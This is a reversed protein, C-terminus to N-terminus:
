RILSVNGKKIIKEGNITTANIYYILVASDLLKGKYTGDWSASGSPDTNEFVKEGWRDFIMISFTAVCNEWGLLIFKDNHGDNNPSFANPVIFGDNSPCHYEVIVRVCASDKCSNTDTVTVCYDTTVMPTAIPDPCITCSLRTSPSWNYTGGGAGTLQTSSGSIITVNFGANAAPGNRVFVNTNATDSCGGNSVIVSYSTNTTPSISISSTTNGTNWNYLGGGSAILVTSEGKCITDNGTIVAVPKVSVIVNEAATDSCGNITGTVIYTATIAPTVNAMNTSIVTTGASWTYSMAGNAILTVTQGACISTDNGLTVFPSTIIVVVPLSDSIVGSHTIAFVTYTGSATFIHGPNFLASSNFVGSSPDNFNWSVSDLGITDAITFLTTDGLCTNIFTVPSPTLNCSFNYSSVFGDGCALIENTGGRIIDYVPGSTATTSLLNLSDNYQCIGSQTGVYVNGCTDIAIGSNKDSIGGPVTATALVNGNTIDRKYIKSGDFTYIYNTNGALGNFGHFCKMDSAFSSNDSVAYYSGYECLLYNSQVNYSNIFTSSNKTLRNTSLSASNSDSSSVHLLHINGGPTLAMSRVEAINGPAIITASDLVTGNVPNLAVLNEGSYLVYGAALLRNNANDFIIRWPEVFATDAWIVSSNSGDLKMIKGYCCGSVLYINGTPDIAIDGYYNSSPTSYVPNAVYTWLISGSANLKKVEYPPQGGYIFIEGTAPNRVLDYGKNVSTFGPSVTWPDIIIEKDHDYNDIKFTVINGTIKFSSSIKSGISGSFTIPSHDIITGKGTDFLINGQGDFYPRSNNSYIMGIKSLDALPHVIITYKIGKEKHFTYELDIGAYLNKYTIKKYGKCRYPENSSPNRYYYIETTLEEAIIQVNPNANAWKISIINRKFNLQQEEEKKENKKNPFPDKTIEKEPISYIFNIGKNTFVIQEGPNNIGFLARGEIGEINTLQGSNEIFIKSQLSITSPSKKKSSSENGNSGTILTPFFLLIAFALIRFTSYKNELKM